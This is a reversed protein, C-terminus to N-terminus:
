HLSKTGITHTCILPGLTHYGEESVGGTDGYKLTMVPVDIQETLYGEDQSWVTNQHCICSCFLKIINIVM